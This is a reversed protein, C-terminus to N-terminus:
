DKKLFFLVEHRFEKGFILHGKNKFMVLRAGPIGEATERFLEPMYYPDKDGGLVLTPAKINPLKNKFNHNDEAYVTAIFDHADGPAIGPISGIISLIGTLMRIVFNHPLLFRLSASIFKKWQGKDAFGALAIQFRKGEDGLKYASSWLILKRVLHPYVAAFEQAISGGTSTGIIDVPVSNLEEVIMAAYDDAMDKITVESALGQKRNVLFITYDDKLSKFDTFASFVTFKSLPKNEIQLGLFIVLVRPGNGYRNYPLGNKFYGKKPWKKKM